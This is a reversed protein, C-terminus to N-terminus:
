SRYPFVFDVDAKRYVNAAKALSDQVTCKTLGCDERAAELVPLVMLVLAVFLQLTLRTMCLYWVVTFIYFASEKLSTFAVECKLTCKTDLTTVPEAM